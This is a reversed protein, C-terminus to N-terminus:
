KKLKANYFVYGTSSVLIVAGIIYLITNTNTNPVDVIEAVECGDTLGGNECTPNMALELSATVEEAIDQLVVVGQIAPNEAAYYFAKEYTNNASVTVKIKSPDYKGNAVRIKFSETVNFTNKANNNLDTIIAKDSNVSVTYTGLVNTFVPEIVTEYYKKDSSLELSSSKPNLVVSGYGYGSSKAEKAAEVLEKVYPRLGFEDKGDTKFALSLYDTGNIDDLYWWIATQTIYYDYDGNGTINRRPYGNVLIYTIGADSEQVLKETINSPTIKALETCYAYGGGVLPMKAVHVDAVYPTLSSSVGVTVTNDLAKANGLAFLMSIIGVLVLNLIKSMRKKM